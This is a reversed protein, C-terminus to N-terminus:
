SKAVQELPKSEGLSDLSIMVDERLGSDLFNQIKLGYPRLGFGVLDFLDPTDNEPM